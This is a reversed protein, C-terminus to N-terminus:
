AAQNAQAETLQTEIRQRLVPASDCGAFAVSPGLLPLFWIMLNRTM